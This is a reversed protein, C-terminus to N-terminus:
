PTTSSFPAEPTSSLLTDTGAPHHTCISRVHSPTGSTSSAQSSLSGSNESFPNIRIIDSRTLTHTTSPIFFFPIYKLFVVLSSVYLKHTISDFCRYGKKDEVYSLFVYIASQSSL